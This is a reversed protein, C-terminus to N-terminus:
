LSITTAILTAKISARDPSNFKQTTFNGRGWLGNFSNGM